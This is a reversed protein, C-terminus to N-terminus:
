FRADHHLSYIKHGVLHTAVWLKLFAPHPSMLTRKVLEGAEERRVM